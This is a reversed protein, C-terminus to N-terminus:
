AEMFLSQLLRKYEQADRTLMEDDTNVFLEYDAVLNRRFDELAESVKEGAGVRSGDLQLVALFGDRATGVCVEQVSIRFRTRVVLSKGDSTCGFLGDAIYNRVEKPLPEDLVSDFQSETYRAREVRNQSPSYTLFDNAYAVATSM